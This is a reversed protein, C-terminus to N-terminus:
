YFDQRRIKAVARSAPVARLELLDLIEAWQPTWFAIPGSPARLLVGSKGPGRVAIAQSIDGYPAEWRILPRFPGRGRVAVGSDALELRAAAYSGTLMRSTMGGPYVATTGDVQAASRPFSFRAILALVAFFGAVALV